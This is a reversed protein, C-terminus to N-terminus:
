SRCTTTSPSACRRNATRSMLVGRCPHSRRFLMARRLFCLSRARRDGLPYLDLDSRGPQRARADRRRKRGHVTALAFIGCGGPLTARADVRRCRRCEPQFGARRRSRLGRLRSERLACNRLPRAGLCPVGVTRSRVRRYRWAGFATLWAPMRLSRTSRTATAM